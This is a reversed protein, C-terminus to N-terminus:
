KNEHPKSAATVHGSASGGTGGAASGPLKESGPSATGESTACSSMTSGQCNSDRVTATSTKTGPTDSLVGQALAPGHAGLLSGAVLCVTVLTLPLSTGLVFKM